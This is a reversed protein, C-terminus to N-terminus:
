VPANDSRLAIEYLLVFGFAVVAAIRIPMADGSMASLLIGVGLTAATAALEAHRVLKAKSSQSDAEQVETYRPMISFFMAVGQTMSMAALGPDAM